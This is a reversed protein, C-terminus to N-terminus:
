VPGNAAKQALKTRFNKWSKVKMSPLALEKNGWLALRPFHSNKWSGIHILCLLKLAQPMWVPGNAAGQAM